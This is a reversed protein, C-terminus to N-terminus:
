PPAVVQWCCSLACGYDFWLAIAIQISLVDAHDNRGTLGPVPIAPGIQLTEADFGAQEVVPSVSM